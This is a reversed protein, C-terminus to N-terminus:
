TIMGGLHRVRMEQVDFCDACFNARPQAGLREAGILQDCITCQRQNERPALPPIPRNRASLSASRSGCSTCRARPIEDKLTRLVDERDIGHARALADLMPETV